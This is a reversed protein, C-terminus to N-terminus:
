VVVSRTTCSELTEAALVLNRWPLMLSFFAPTSKTKEIM